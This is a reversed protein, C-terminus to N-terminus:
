GAGNRAYREEYEALLQMRYIDPGPGEAKEKADM